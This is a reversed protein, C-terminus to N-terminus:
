EVGRATSNYGSGGMGMEGKSLQFMEWFETAIGLMVESDAIPDEGDVSLGLASFTWAVDALFGISTADTVDTVWDLFAETAVPVSPSTFTFGMRMLWLITRRYQMATRYIRTFQMWRMVRSSPKKVGLATDARRVGYDIATQEAIAWSIDHSSRDTLRGARRQHFYDAWKRSAPNGGTGSSLGLSIAAGREVAEIVAAHVMALWSGYGAIGKRMFFAIVGELARFQDISHLQQLHWTSMYKVFELRSTMSMAEIQSITCDLQEWCAEVPNIGYNDKPPTHPTLASPDQQDKLVQPNIAWVALSFLWIALLSKM